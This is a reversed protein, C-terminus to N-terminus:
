PIRVVARVEETNAPAIAGSPRHKQEDAAFHDSFAIRDDEGTMVWDKGIAAAFVRFAVPDFRNM